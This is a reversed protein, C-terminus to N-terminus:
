HTNKKASIWRKMPLEFYWFTYYSVIICLCAFSALTIGSEYIKTGEGVGLFLLNAVLLMLPTHCLYMAYTYNGVNWKSNQSPALKPFRCDVAASILIVGGFIALQNLTTFNSMPTEFFAVSLSLCGLSCLALPSFRRVAEHMLCGFFFYTSCLLINHKAIGLYASFSLITLPLAASPHRRLLPLVAFFVAYVIVEVSVSWVPGNFSLGSEFGWASAFLFNLSFHYSDNNGFFLTQGFNQSSLLQVTAVIILTAFHLPYLRAFRQRAFDGGTVPRSFYQFIFVFGSISWFFPVAMETYFSAPDVPSLTSSAIQGPGLRFFLPYHHLIVALAALFRLQDITGFYSPVNPTNALFFPLRRMSMILNARILRPENLHDGREVRHKM